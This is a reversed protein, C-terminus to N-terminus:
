CLARSVSYGTRKHTLRVFRCANDTKTSLISQAEAEKTSRNLFFPRFGSLGTLVFVKSHSSVHTYSQVNAFCRLALACSRPQSRASSKQSKDDNISLKRSSQTTGDWKYQQGSCLIADLKRRRDLDRATHALKGQEVRMPSAGSPPTDMTLWPASKSKSTSSSTHSHSEAM